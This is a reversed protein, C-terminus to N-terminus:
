KVKLVKEVLGKSFDFLGNTLKAYENIVKSINFLGFHEVLALVFWVGVCIAAGILMYLVGSLITDVIRTPATASVLKCCKKLLLNLLFMLVGALAAFCAGAILKALVDAFPLSDGLANACRGTVVFLFSFIGRENAALPSFPLYFCGGIAAISGLSIIISRLSNLLGNEFGKNAWVIIIGIALGDLLAFQAFELVKAVIVIDLVKGINMDFLGTGNIILLTISIAAWLIVAVNLISVVGGLIRGLVKPPNFGTKHIRKGYPNGDDEGDYDLYEPEFELGYEALTTDGNVNDKIWRIRPRFFHALVGYLVLAAAACLLALALTKGFRVTPTGEFTLNRAILLFAAGATVWTVGFWSVKRVGKIFGVIFAVILLAGAGAGVLMPLKQVLDAAMVSHLSFM